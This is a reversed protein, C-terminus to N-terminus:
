LPTAAEEIKEPSLVDIRDCVLNALQKEIEWWDRSLSEASAILRQLYELEETPTM